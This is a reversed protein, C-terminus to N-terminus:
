ILSYEKAVATFAKQSGLITSESVCFALRFYGPCLFASGPVVLLNHKACQAAFEIDDVPSKVFLYLAGAPKTCSFGVGTVIDYLLNRRHEYNAIDARADITQEIIKQFFAPANVSGLIRNCLVIAPCLQEYDAHKPSVASYGIREGPLSLSKSWSYCIILNDFHDLSCPAAAGDYVLDIYPEDSIVHILHDGALLCANIRDLVEAPYIVGSPNNPSNIIIAKTKPTVAAQIKELDPMFTDPITPVVVPVGLHNDIYSIYEIFFPALVIVEDGPDLIARLVANMAGAAGVTMCIGDADVAVSSSRTLKDAVVKRTSLYGSNSMYAHKGLIDSAAYASIADIVEQPPELDPNGISFDFVNDAGYIAKLRSGEEFMKRIMSGTIMKDAIRRSIM